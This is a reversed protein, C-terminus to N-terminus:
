WRNKTPIRCGRASCEILVAANAQRDHARALRKFVERDFCPGQACPRRKKGDTSRIETSGQRRERRENAPCRLRSSQLGLEIEVIVCAQAFCEALVVGEAFQRG